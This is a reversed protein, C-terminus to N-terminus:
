RTAVLQAEWTAPDSAYRLISGIADDMRFTSRAVRIASAGLEDLAPHGALASDLWGELGEMAPGLLGLSTGAYRRMATNPANVVVVGRRMANTVRETIAGTMSNANLSILCRTRKMTELMGAFTMPGAVVCDKHRSTVRSNGAVVILSPYLTLRALLRQRSRNTAFRTLLTLALRGAKSRLDLEVSLDATSRELAGIVPLALDADLAEAAAEIARVVEPHRGFAVRWSARFHEPDDCNGVFLIPVPRRSTPLWRPEDRLGVDNYAPRYPLLRTGARGVRAAYDLSDHDMLMGLKRDFVADHFGTSGDYYPPNGILTVLTKRRVVEFEPTGRDPTPWDKSQSRVTVVLPYEPAALVERLCRADLPDVLRVAHGLGTLAAHLCAYDLQYLDRDLGAELWPLM